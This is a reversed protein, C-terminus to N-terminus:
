PKIFSTLYLSVYSNVFQFLFMKLILSDQFETETRHNEWATLKEALSKLRPLREALQTYIANHVIITVANAVSMFTGYGQHPRNLLNGLVIYTTMTAVVALLCAGCVTAITYVVGSRDKTTDYVHTQLQDDWLGECESMPKENEEVGLM